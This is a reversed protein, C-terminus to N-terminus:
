GRPDRWMLWMRPGSPLQLEDSVRFGHRAYFDVNRATATELYAAVGESDCRDLVPALLASGLGQGQREPVTGLVSLYYHPRAPHRREVDALGRLSRLTRRGMSPLVVALEKLAALPPDRWRGPEAWVAAAVADPTTYVEEQPLLLRVRGAFYRESSRRRAREGPFMWTFVPDEHFARALAAGLSEVDAATAKRVAPTTTM